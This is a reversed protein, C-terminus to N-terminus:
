SRLEYGYGLESNIDFSWGSSEGYELNREEPGLVLIKSLMRLHGFQLNDAAAPLQKRWTGTNIYYKEIGSSVKIVEVEPVHTHGIILCKIGSLDNQICAEKTVRKALKTLIMRTSIFKIMAKVVWFPIHRPKIRFNLLSAILFGSISNSKNILVSKPILQNDDAWLTLLKIFVPELIKWTVRNNMGPTTLLFSLLASSPRVNDFEILRAYLKKLEDNNLIVEQQYYRKFELPLRTAIDLTVFDGLVPSDYREKDIFIPVSPLIKIDIGFNTKDYEHGHRVLALNLNGPAYIYINPFPDSDIGMGLMIRVKQRIAPTSNALRDHNGPLYHIKVDVGILTQIYRFLELTPGVHEDNEIADLINLIREEIGSGTHVDQNHIYPRLEDTLWLETRTLEFIDGALVLDVSKINHQRVIVALEQFYNKYVLAPLNNNYPKNGLQNSQSEAFHTDSMVVLM